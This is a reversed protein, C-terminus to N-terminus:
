NKSEIYAIIIRSLRAFIPWLISCSFFFLYRHFIVSFLCYMREKILVIKFSCHSKSSFLFLILVILASRLVFFKKDLNLFCVNAIILLYIDFSLKDLLRPTIEVVSSFLNQCIIYSLCFYLFLTLIVCTETSSFFIFM